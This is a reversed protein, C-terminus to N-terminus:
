SVMNGFYTQGWSRFLADNWGIVEGRMGASALEGEYVMLHGGAQVVVWVSSTIGEPLGESYLIGFFLIVALVVLGVIITCWPQRMKIGRFRTNKGTFSLIVVDSLELILSISIGWITGTIWGAQQVGPLVICGIGTNFSQDIPHITCDGDRVAIGFPQFLPSCWRVPPPEPDRSARIAYVLGLIQLVLIFIFFTIALISSVGAIFYKQAERVKQQGPQAQAPLELLELEPEGRPSPQLTTQATSELLELEPEGRLLPQLTTQATPELLRPEPEGRPLPQLTTQATPELLGLEPEGRPSPQLTTQASPRSTLKGTV